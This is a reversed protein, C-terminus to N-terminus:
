QYQTQSSPLHYMRSHISVERLLNRLFIVFTAQEYWAKSRQLISTTGRWININYESQVYQIDISFSNKTKLDQLFINWSPNLTAIAYLVHASM